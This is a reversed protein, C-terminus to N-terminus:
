GETKATVTLTKTMGKMSHSGIPCYVKYEGTQLDAQVTGKTHPPIPASLLANIGPGEIKFSHTKGGENLVIFNTQGAPLTEPMDIKYESLHVEVVNVAKDEARIGAALSFLLVPALVYLALRKMKSM